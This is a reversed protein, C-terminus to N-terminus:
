ENLEKMGIVVNWPFSKGFSFLLEDNDSLIFKRFNISTWHNIHDEPNGLRKVNKLVLLNGLCFWPENPVTIIVGKSAVRIIEKVAKDPRDLHELVETCIVLDFTNDEFDLNYINGQCFTIDPNLRQAVEFAETAYEVGIIQSDPIRDKVIRTIFGEGCGADLINIREMNSRKKVDLISGIIKENLKDVMVRKLKNKTMYKDYNGTNYSYNEM